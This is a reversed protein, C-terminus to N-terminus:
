SAGGRFRRKLWRLVREVRPGTVLRRRCRPTGFVAVPTFASGDLALSVLDEASLTPRGARRTLPLALGGLGDYARSEEPTM